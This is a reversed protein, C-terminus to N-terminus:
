KTRRKPLDKCLEIVRDRYEDTQKLLDALLWAQEFAEAEISREFLDFRVANDPRRGNIEDDAM